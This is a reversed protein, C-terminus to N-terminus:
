LIHIGSVLADYNLWIIDQDRVPMLNFHRDLLARSRGM